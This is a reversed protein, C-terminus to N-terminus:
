PPPEATRVRATGTIYRDAAEVGLLRTLNILFADIADLPRGDAAALERIRQEVQARTATTPDLTEHWGDAM